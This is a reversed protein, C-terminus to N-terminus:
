EEKLLGRERADILVKNINSEAWAIYSDIDKLYIIKNGVKIFEFSFELDTQLNAKIGLRKLRPKKRGDEEEDFNDRIDHRIHNRIDILLLDMRHSLGCKRLYTLLWDHSNQSKLIVDFPKILDYSLKKEDLTLNQLTLNIIQRKQEM